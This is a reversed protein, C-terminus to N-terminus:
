VNEKGGKDSQELIDGVTAANILNIREAMLKSKQEKIKVILRTAKEFLNYEGLKKSDKKLQEVDREHKELSLLENEIALATRQREIKCKESFERDDYLDKEWKRFYKNVTKVDFGTDNATGLASHGKQFYPRLTDEINHQQKRSPRGRKGKTM